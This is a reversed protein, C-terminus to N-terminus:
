TYLTCHLTIYPIGSWWLVTSPSPDLSARADLVDMDQRVAWGYMGLSVACGYMGPSVAWGYGAECGMWIRGPNVAVEEEEWRGGWMM